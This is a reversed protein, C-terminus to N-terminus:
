VRAEHLRQLKQRYQRYTSSGPGPYGHETAWNWLDDDNRPLSEKQAKIPTIDDHWRKGNLYTAPYPIFQKDQWQKDKKLRNRVDSLLTDALHELNNKKWARKAAPKNKKVPYESYWDDFGKEREDGALPVIPPKTSPLLETKSRANTERKAPKGRRAIGALPQKGVCRGKGTEYVTLHSGGGVGGINVEIYGSDALEKMIRRYKFDGISM